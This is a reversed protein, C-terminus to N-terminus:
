QISNHINEAVKRGIYFPAVFFGILASLIFKVGAYIFWGAIPMWVFMAPQISTLTNWGFYACILMVIVGLGTGSSWLIATLGWLIVCASATIAYRGNESAWFNRGEM